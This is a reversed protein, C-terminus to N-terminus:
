RWTFTTTAGAPETYALGHGHWSLAFRIPHASSNYTVLAKEGSPNVFAVDDLGITPQYFNVRDTGDTVFTNTGIRVAGPRVFESVQGLQYYRIGFLARHTNEDVIVLGRCSPCRKNPRQVPGGAPDLALNWLSVANAWNRLSGIVAETTSFPRVEPSCENMLQVMHPAFAHLQTMVIPTGFYCHWSVGTLDEGAPGAALADAYAFMDWGMDLGYVQARLGAAALRPHLYRMIFSAEDPESLEMGPDAAVGPENQPTVADIVIGHSRYARLFRVFYDAFPGYDGPLLTGVKHFDDSRGNAKMWGPASWPNAIVFLRPDITRAQRLAPIIYPIDHAVSFHSLGPDAKGRPMDDYSYPKGRATYDSAGMPLRIYNLNIGARSFLRRLLSNRDAPALEDRILWASSDTLTAGFGVITQDRISDDVQVVIATRAGGPEMWEDPLHRMRQSLTVTTQVVQVEVGQPHSSSRAWATQSCTFTVALATVAVARAWPHLAIRM